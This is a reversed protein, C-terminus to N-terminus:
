STVGNLLIGILTLMEDKHLSMNKSQYSFQEKVSYRTATAILTEMIIAIRKNVEPHKLTGDKQGLIIADEMMHHTEYNKLLLVDESRDDSNVYRIYEWLFLMMEPRDLMVEFYAELIIELQEKGTLSEDLNIQLDYIDNIYSTRIYTLLDMKSRFYEYMTSRGIKAETSIEHMTTSAISSKYFMTKATTVLHERRKKKIETENSNAM